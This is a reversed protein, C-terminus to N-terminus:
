IQLANEWGYRAKFGIIKEAKASGVGSWNGSAATKIPIGRGFHQAILEATPEKMSSNPAAVIMMEHGSFQADLALRCAAAADRGDIYAWATRARAGPDKWRERVLGYSFDFIVGPFRLSAISLEPHVLAISDAILEGAVKSLGYPDQPKSPHAEDLPLYEPLAARVAYIFGFAATSSAIVVKKVGLDGAAKLVNYTASVNNNFVECDPALGPAQYAGLHVVGDAGVFAQYLDGPSRLDAVWTPCPGIVPRVRDLSLVDCGHSLLEQVVLQGLRGSAGTVVVKNM